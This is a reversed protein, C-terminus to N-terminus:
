DDLVKIIQSKITDQKIREHISGEHEKLPRKILQQVLMVQLEKEELLTLHETSKSETPVQTLTNPDLELIELLGNQQFICIAKSKSVYKNTIVM